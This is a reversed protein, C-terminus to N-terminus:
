SIMTLGMALNELIKSNNETELSGGHREGGAGYQGAAARREIISNSKLDDRPKKKSKQKNTIMPM